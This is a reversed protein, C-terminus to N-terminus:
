LGHSRKFVRRAARSSTHRVPIYIVRDDALRIWHDRPTKHPKVTVLSTRRKLSSEVHVARLKFTSAALSLAGFISVTGGGTPRPVRLRAEAESSTVSSMSHLTTFSASSSAAPTGFPSSIPTTFPSYSPSSFPSGTSAHFPILDAKGLPTAVVHATPSPAPLTFPFVLASVSPEVSSLCFPIALSCGTPNTYLPHAPGSTTRKFSLADKVLIISTSPNAVDLLARNPDLAPTALCDHVPAAHTAETATLPVPLLPSAAAFVADSLTSATAKFITSNAKLMAYAKIARRMQIRKGSRHQHKTKSPPLSQGESDERKEGKRGDLNMRSEKAAM